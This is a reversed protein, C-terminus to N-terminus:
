FMSEGGEKRVLTKEEASERKKGSLLSPDTDRGEKKGRDVLNASKHPVLPQRGVEGEV